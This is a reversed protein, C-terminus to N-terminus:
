LLNLIDEIYQKYNEITKKNLTGTDNEYTKKGTDDYERLLIKLQALPSSKFIQLEPPTMLGGQIVLTKKSANSLKDFYKKSITSLYRKTQVHSNVLECVILPLGCKQLYNSGILEHNMIGLSQKQNTHTADDANDDIMHMITNLITPAETENINKNTTEEYGVLHGIDHLLAAVIVCQKEYLTYKNLRIDHIAHEACQIAHDIQTINEGIYNFSGYKNYLNVIKNVTTNVTNNNNDM